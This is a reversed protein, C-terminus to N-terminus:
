IAKLSAPKQLIENISNYLYGYVVLLISICKAVDISVDREM